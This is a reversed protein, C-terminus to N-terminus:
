TFYLEIYIQSVKLLPYQHQRYNDKHRELKAILARFHFFYFNFLTILYFFVTM